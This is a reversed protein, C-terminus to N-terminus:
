RLWTITEEVVGTCAGCGGRRLRQGLQVFAELVCVFQLLMRGMRAIISARIQMM